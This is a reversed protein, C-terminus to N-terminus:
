LWTAEDPGLLSAELSDLERSVKCCRDQLDWMDTAERALDRVTSLAIGYIGAIDGCDTHTLTLM